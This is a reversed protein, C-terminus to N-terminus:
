SGAPLYARRANVGGGLRGRGWGDERSGREGGEGRSGSGTELAAPALSLAQAYLLLLLGRRRLESGPRLRGPLHRPPRTPPPQCIQGPTPASLVTSRRRGM